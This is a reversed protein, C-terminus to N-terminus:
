LAPSATPPRLKRQAGTRHLTRVLDVVLIAVIVLLSLKTFEETPAAHFVPGSTLWWTLMGIWALDGALDMRRLTRNWRGARLVLIYFAFTVAWLPIVWPARTALFDQDLAFADLLPRPLGPALDPLSPLAILATAGAVGFSLALTLGLRNIRDPDVARTPKWPKADRRRPGLKAALAFTVLIGPWWFAGLGWSLWWMGLRHLWDESATSLLAAPLTLAWQLLVGGLALWAFRPAEGARIVAAESTLYREAIDEPHGFGALFEMTLVEDAPRGTDAARGEVEEHLLSRLEFGVDNRQRRPLRRVVDAVYSEIIAKPDM